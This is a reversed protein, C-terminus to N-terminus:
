PTGVYGSVTVRVDGTSARASGSLGLGVAVQIPPDFQLDVIAGGGAPPVHVHMSEIPTGATDEIITDQVETAHLNSARLGTIYVSKGAVAAVIAVATSSTIEATNFATFPTADKPVGRRTGDLM